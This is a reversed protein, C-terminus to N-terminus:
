RGHKRWSSKPTLGEKWVQFIFSVVMYTASIIAIWVSVNYFTEAATTYTSNIHIAYSLLPLLLFPLIGKLLYKLGQSWFDTTPLDRQYLYYVGLALGMATVTAVEVSM